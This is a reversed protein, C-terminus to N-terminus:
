LRGLFVRTDYDFSVRGDRQHRLFLAELEAMLAAHGPRNPAPVYSASLTRGRLGELDFVQRYNLTHARYGDPGFFAAIVDEDAHSAAIARYEPCRTQLLTEYDQLFPTDLRRTNWVLAVWGGPRLIRAFEARSHQPEFWHFAQGATVLDVSRDPLTTAEARGAISGFRAYGALYAEGAARMAANPEVGYVACGYDLFLRTLLGTGSGIDAVTWSPALSCAEALWDLLQAPYGPRYRAYDEVRDTFRETPASM